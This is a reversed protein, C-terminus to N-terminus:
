QKTVVNEIELCLRLFLFLFYFYFQLFCGHWSIQILKSIIGNVTKMIQHIYPSRALNM